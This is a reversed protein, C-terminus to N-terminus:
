LLPNDDELLEWNIPDKMYYVQLGKDRWPIDIKNFEKKLCLVEFHGRIYVYKWVDESMMMLVKRRIAYSDMHRLIGLYSNISQIGKRIDDLNKFHNLKYIASIYNGVTRKAPYVRGFKVVAGTFKIGKSYHQIYFKDPHLEVHCREALMQRIKPVSRLMKRKNRHVIYFDDVYRGHFEFGLEKELYWDLLNLLFNAFLQSPLNGIALGCDEGNTFLSKNPPLHNWREMSSRRECDLEPRHMVVVHTLWLIDDKDPGFYYRTIFDYLLQDLLRKDISMFFGRLDLRMLWCSKTYNESCKRIDEKLMDIGFLVGKEKRCNFTREGFIEELLPEVRMAILHHVVRDRFNAAFVERYKPKTVVFTISTTPYYTRSNIEDVLRILDQRHDLMYNITSPSSGKHKLCQYYAEFMDEDTVM